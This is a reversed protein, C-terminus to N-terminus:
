EHKSAGVAKVMQDMSRVHTSVKDYENKATKLRRQMKMVDKKLRDIDSLSLEKNKNSTLRNVIKDFEVHVTYLDFKDQMKKRKKWCEVHYFNGPTEIQMDTLISPKWALFMVIEQVCSQSVSFQKNCIKCKGSM